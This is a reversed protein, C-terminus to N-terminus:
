FILTTFGTSMVFLQPSPFELAILLLIRFQCFFKNALHATLQRSFPILLRWLEEHHRGAERCQNKLVEVEAPIYFPPESPWQFQAKTKALAEKGLPEGHASASDQKPSGFGIHTRVIILSPRPETQANRIAADITSLDNGDNVQLVQWGYALFRKEVDEKFALTTSGEISIQNDDYLYILKGLKLHGAMSAAESAVGEMLDGDSVIAYTYHNVMQFDNKNFRAALSREALAVGVGTAFGQGLPGTTMEVGPTEGREPHGPTKSQWQRFRQLESMPLDYGSLHLLAYLLASGHGASLIFRDRDWWQPNTPNHRMHRSWLLYAMPAAGLPMGPHGSQAKEVMEVALMRLSDICLQDFSPKMSKVGVM